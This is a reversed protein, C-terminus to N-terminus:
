KQVQHILAASSPSSFSAELRVIWYRDPAKLVAKRLAESIWHSDEILNYFVSDIGIFGDVLHAIMHLLKSPYGMALRQLDKIERCGEGQLDDIFGRLISMNANIVQELAPWFEQKEANYSEEEVVAISDYQLLSSNNFFKLVHSKAAAFGDAECM